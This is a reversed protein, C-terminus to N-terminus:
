RVAVPDAREGPLAPSRVARRFAQPPVGAWRRFARTFNASDRYGLAASVEIVKATPDRLMRCAAEFRAQQLLEAFQLGAQDLRRQFSRVSVGATRAAATLDPAGIRLRSEVMQRVSGAFELDPLSDDTASPGEPLAPPLRLALLRRPLVLAMSAQGFRVGRVCMSELFGAHRRRRSETALELPRWGPGAGLRVLQVMLMAVYDNVPQRGRALAAAYRWHVEAEDDRHVLWFRQGSNFRGANGVIADFAAALTRSRSAIAALDSAEPMPFATAVHFALDRGVLQTAAEWLDGGFSLPVLANGDALGSWQPGSPRAPAIGSRELYRLLPHLARARIM